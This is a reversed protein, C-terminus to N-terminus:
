LGTHIDLVELTCGEFIELTAGFQLQFQWLLLALLGMLGAGEQRCCLYCMVIIMFAIVDIKWAETQVLSKNM